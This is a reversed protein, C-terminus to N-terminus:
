GWGEEHGWMGNRNKWEDITLWVGDSFWGGPDNWVYLKGNQEDYYKEGHGLDKNDSDQPKGIGYLHAEPKDDEYAGESAITKLTRMVEDKYDEKEKQVDYDRSLVAKGKDTEYQDIAAKNTEVLQTMQDSLAAMSGTYQVNKAASSLDLAETGRMGAQGRARGAAGGVFGTQAGVMQAMTDAYSTAASLYDTSLGTQLNIGTEERGREVEGVALGYLDKRLEESTDLTEIDLGYTREAFGAKWPDFEEFADGFDVLDLGFGAAIEESTMGSLEDASPQWGSSGHSSTDQNLPDYDDQDHYPM